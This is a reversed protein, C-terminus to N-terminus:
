VSRNLTWLLLKYHNGVFDAIWSIVGGVVGVLLLLAVFVGGVCTAWQIFYGYLTPNFVVEHQLLWWFMMSGVVLAIIFSTGAGLDYFAEVM